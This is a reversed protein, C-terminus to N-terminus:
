QQKNPELVFKLKTGCHICALEQAGQEAEDFPISFSRLCDTCTLVYYTGNRPIWVPATDRKFLHPRIPSEQLLQVIKSFLERTTYEGKHFLADSLLGEPNSRGLFEGTIAIVPIQPFRRRVVSLFEFGSM